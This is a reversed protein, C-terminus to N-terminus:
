PAAPTARTFGTLFSPALVASTCFDRRPLRLDCGPSPPSPNPCLRRLKSPIPSLFIGDLWRFRWCLDKGAADANRLAPQRPFSRWNWGHTVKLPSVTSLVQQAEVRAYSFM